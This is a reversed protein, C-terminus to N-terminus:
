QVLYETMFYGSVQGSVAVSYTLTSPYFFYGSMGTSSVNTIKQGFGSVITETKSYGMGGAGNNATGTMRVTFTVVVDTYVLNEYKKSVATSVLYSSNSCGVGIYDKYNSNHLTISQWEYKIYRTDTYTYGNFVITATFTYVIETENANKTVVYDTNSVYTTATDSCTGCGCVFTATVNFGNEDEVWAFTPAQYFHNDGDCNQVPTYGDYFIFGLDALGYNLEAGDFYDGMWNLLDQLCSSYIKLLDEEYESLGNYSFYTLKSKTTFEEAIIYGKVNNQNIFSGNSYISYSCGYYYGQATPNLSLYTYYYTGDTSFWSMSAFASNSSSDYVISMKVDYNAGEYEEDIRYWSNANDLEGEIRIHNKLLTWADTNYEFALAEFGFDEADIDEVYTDLCYDFWEMICAVASSYFELLSKEEWYEGEYSYHTLLTTTTYTAPDIYGYTYNDNDEYTYHAYYTYLGTPTESLDISLYLESGDAFNWVGEIFNISKSVNYGIAYIFENGEIQYYFLDNDIIYNYSRLLWETLIDNPTHQSDYLEALTMPAGYELNDLEGTFIAVNIEGYFAGVNVGIVEGYKNILPSGSSGNTIAADHQVYTVGAIERKAYSVIGVSVSATFGKPSGVAYVMEAVVPDNKCINAPTLGTANIKLVALDVDADYALVSQITYTDEGITITASYAGDVVHYNTIINGDASSVFGTGQALPIGKKDYTIIEGVYKLAQNYIETSTYEQLHFTEEYYYNCNTRTCSFRKTGTKNCTANEIISVNDCAHQLAHVTEQNVIPVNCVGCHSGETRGSTTCTAPVAVDIVPSHGTAPTETQPVIVVNCVSCHSGETKGKVTCTAVVAMDVVESHSIKEIADYESYGCSCTRSQLGQAICSPENITTWASFSHAHEDKPEDNNSNCSTLVFFLMSLLCLITFILLSKKKM